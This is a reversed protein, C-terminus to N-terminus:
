YGLNRDIVSGDVANLTLFSKMAGPNDETINTDINEGFYGIFDWIPLYFYENDTGMRAVRMMTLAVECITVDRQKENLSEKEFQMPLITRATEIIEDYTKITVNDNITELIEPPGQWEFGILGDDNVMVEIREDYWPERYEAGDAGPSTANNTEIYPCPVGEINRSFIFQYALYTRDKASRVSTLSCDLGISKIFESAIAIAEEKTTKIEIQDSDSLVSATRYAAGKWDRYEIYSDGPIEFGEIVSVGICAPISQDDCLMITKMGDNERYAIEIVEPITDPANEYAEEVTKLMEGVWEINAELVEAGCPQGRESEDLHLESWKGTSKLSELDARYANMEKELEDKRLYYDDNYLTNDGFLEHVITEVEDITFAHPKVNVVPLQNKDPLNVAANVHISIVGDQTKLEEQWTTAAHGTPKGTNGKEEQRTTAARDTPEETNKEMLKKELAGGGKNVVAEQEPTPQCACLSLAIILSLASSITRKKM